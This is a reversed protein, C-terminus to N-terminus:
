PKVLRIPDDMSEDVLVGITQCTGARFAETASQAGLRRIRRLSLLAAPRKAAAAAFRRNHQGHSVPQHKEGLLRSRRKGPRM